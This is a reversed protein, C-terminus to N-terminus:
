KGPRRTKLDENWEMPSPRYATIIRVNNGPVDVAILVHFVSTLGSSYVLYSPLYKDAPYEEIIEFSEVSECIERRSLSRIKFRMQVHYTWFIARKEICNKIFELPNDPLLQNPTM